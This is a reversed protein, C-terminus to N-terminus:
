RAIVFLYRKVDTSGTVGLTLPGAHITDGATKLAISFTHSPPDDWACADCTTLDAASAAMAIAGAGNQPATPVFATTPASQSIQTGDDLTISSQGGAFVQVEYIGARDAASVASGDPAPVITEVDSALMPVIAGIKALVPVSGLPAARDVDGGGTIREHTFFDYYEPDPLYVKRSVLGRAVVPAVLLGDGYMYEDTIAYVRPDSPYALYLHRMVPTGRARAQRVAVKVYPLMRTKYGAYKKYLDLTEADKWIQWRDSAKGNGAGENEDHMDASFAGVETWRLYLEKDPPPNYIFHYGSIDSGWLPLGSMGANLAGTLAAPLGDAADFDTNQDGAWVMTVAGGTGQYGSRVFILYDKQKKKELLDFAARQYLVPYLNHAELGTMGNWMVADQPVYEAFDYMWGDWGDDLARQLHAQYWAVADPNTFDVMAASYPPDLVVYPTGDPKKVLYGKASADDFEPHFSDAVFPCFYAIAKFGRKHIDDTVAKMAGPASLVDGVGNPFYHTATDIVSTPVHAQRLKDMEDTGINARRRPAFAWDAVDPPRGTVETLAEVLRLPDPDAFITLDLKATWAELRFANPTEDGLHHVSRFTTTLLLGFGKPSLFWPIPINTQGEGNPFPNAPGPPTNEGQGFGGDEVWNYLLQGKHDSRVFREGMGFFHDDDHMKFALSVRNVVNPDDAAGADPEVVIHAGIGQSTITITVHKHADDNTEVTVTLKDPTSEVATTHAGKKWPGDVGRYYNWGFMVGKITQDDNHTMALPAYARMPDNDDAPEPLDASELLTKGSKDKITMQFPDGNVDVSVSGGGTTWSAGPSPGGTLSISGGSCDYGLFLPALGMLLLYRFRM